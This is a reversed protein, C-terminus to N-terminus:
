THQRASLLFLLGILLAFAFSLTIWTKQRESWPLFELAMVRLGGALHVALASVLLWEGTKVWPNAAWVLFDDLGRAGDLAKALVFFHFPLFLALALGSLRHVFFAFYGAHSRGSVKRTIHTLSM